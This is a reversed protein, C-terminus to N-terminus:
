LVYFIPLQKYAIIGEIVPWNNGACDHRMQSLVRGLERVDASGHTKAPKQENPFESDLLCEELELPHATVFYFYLPREV